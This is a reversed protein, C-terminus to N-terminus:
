RNPKREPTTSNEYIFKSYRVKRDTQISELLRMLESYSM